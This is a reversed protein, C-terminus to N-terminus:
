SQSHKNKCNSCKCNEGCGIGNQFCECYNKQCNSNKCNCGKIHKLRMEESVIKERFAFKSKRKLFKISEQRLDENSEKNLCQPCSCDSCYINKKFCDCYLKLCKSKSCSCCKKHKKPSNKYSLVSESFNTEETSLKNLDSCDDDNYLINRLPSIFSTDNNFLKEESSSSIFLFSGNSYNPYDRRTNSDVDDDIKTSLTNKRQTNRPIEIKLCEIITEKLLNTIEFTVKNQLSYETTSHLCFENSDNAFDSDFQSKLNLIKMEAESFSPISDFANLSITDKTLM